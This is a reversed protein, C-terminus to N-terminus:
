RWAVLGRVFRKGNVMLAHPLYSGVNNEEMARHVGENTLAYLKGCVECHVYGGCDVPTHAVPHIALRWLGCLFGLLTKM